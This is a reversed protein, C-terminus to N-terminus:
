NGNYRNIGERTGFWMTGIEDQYISMVSLQSLGQEVGIRSFYIDNAAFTSRSTCAILFFALIQKVRMKMYEKQFTKCLDLCLYIWFYLIKFKNDLVCNIAYILIQIKLYHM